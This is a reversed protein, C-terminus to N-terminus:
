PVSSSPASQSGANGGGDVLLLLFFVLTINAEIVDEFHAIDAGSFVNKFVLFILWVIRKRYLIGIPADM